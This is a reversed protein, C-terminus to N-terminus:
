NVELEEFLLSRNPYAKRISATLRQVLRDAGSQQLHSLINQLYRAAKIGLHNALYAKLMQDYLAFLEEGHSKLLFHDFATLLEPSQQNELLKLLEECRGEHGLITAITQINRGFHPQQILDALVQQVFEHWDGKFHLKCKKFFSFDGTELLQKRSLQVVTEEDGHGQAIQLLLEELRSRLVTGQHFRLGKEVLHKVKPLLENNAAANVVELLKEESSLCELTFENAQAALEPKELLLLKGKLLQQRHEEPLYIKTLEHDIVQLLGVSKDADTSMWYLLDLFPGSLENLRAAPRTFESIFFEWMEQQLAPPIPLAIMKELKVFVARMLSHFALSKTEGEIKRMVPPIRQLLAASIAWCEAYHELALADDAQDVLESAISLLQRAAQARIHDNSKRSISLAADLLQLYKVRNDALPVKIAFHTKLALSFNRNSQAYRRVFAALEDPRVSDLVATTTLKQYAMPVKQKKRATEEQHDILRRRLALLGAAVHGCMKEAQFVPCDCSFDRVKSPSVQIEVEFTDVAAIWLHREAEFLRSLRGEDLIKEGILLHAEELELELNKLLFNM